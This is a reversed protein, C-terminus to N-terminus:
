FLADGCQWVMRPLVTFIFMVAVMFMALLAIGFFFWKLITIFTTKDNRPPEEKIENKDKKEFESM